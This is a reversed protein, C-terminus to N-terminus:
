KGISTSLVMLMTACSAVGSANITSPAPNSPLFAKAFILGVSKADAILSNKWGSTNRGTAASRPYEPSFSIAIRIM